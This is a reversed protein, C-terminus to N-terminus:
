VSKISYPVINSVAFNVCLTLILDYQKTHGPPIFSIYFGFPKFLRKLSNVM